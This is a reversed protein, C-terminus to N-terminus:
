RPILNRVDFRDGRWCPSPPSAPKGLTSKHGTHQLLSPNHVYERYGAKRMASVVGGDIVRWGRDPDQPRLVMHRAADQNSMLAVLADRDFVLGLAGRGAQNSPYWGEQPKGRPDKPCVVYNSGWTYLNLYARDPYPCWDLYERLGTCALVDDQFLAYRHAQPDRIYLELMSLMWNGAVRVAPYRATVPLNFEDEWEGPSKTGDVFLRPEPFGAAKLSALTAPLLDKRRSPHTTVGYAWRMGTEQPDPLRRPRVLDNPLKTMAPKVPAPVPPTPPPPKDERLTCRDCAQIEGPLDKYKGPHRVVCRDWEAQPHGCGYVPQGGCGCAPTELVPGLHLCPPRPPAAGKFPPGPTAPLPNGWLTAYRQDHLYLWCPRCGDRTKVPDPHDALCPRKAIM